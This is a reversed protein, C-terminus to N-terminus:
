GYIMGGILPILTKGANVASDAAKSVSTVWGQAVQSRAVNELEYNHRKTERNQTNRSREQAHNSRETERERM